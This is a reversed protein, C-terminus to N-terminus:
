KLVDAPQCLAPGKENRWVAKIEPVADLGRWIHLTKGSIDILIEPRNDSDVHPLVRESARHQEAM